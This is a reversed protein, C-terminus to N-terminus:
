TQPPSFVGFRNGSRDHLDAFVLGNPATIPPHVVKGGLQEARACVAAVDEVVVVFTAHNDAAQDTRMIGGSPQDAGPYSILDYGPTNPDPATSWGFLGGYFERAAAPEDTGIQFWAVINPAPATM